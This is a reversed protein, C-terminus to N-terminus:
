LSLNNAEDATNYVVDELIYFTYYSPYDMDPTPNSMADYFDKNYYQDLYKMYKEAESKSTFLVEIGFDENYVKYVKM